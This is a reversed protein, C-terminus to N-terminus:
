LGRYVDEEAQSSGWLSGSERRGEGPGSGEGAEGGPKRAQDDGQKQSM